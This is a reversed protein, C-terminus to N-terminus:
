EEQNNLNDIISKTEVSLIGKKFDEKDIKAWYHEKYLTGNKIAEDLKKHGKLGLFELVGTKANFIQEINLNKDLMAIPKGNLALNGKKGYMGNKEGIAKGMRHESMKKKSEKTHKKGYMGNGKGSKIRSMNKRYEETQTYSKDCNGSWSQYHNTLNYYEENEVANFKHIFEIEKRNNEEENQSIYLIKRKFNEKGYEKIAKQLIVGSGLYDDNLYGHHRGIYKKNNVLNITLYIFYQKEEM